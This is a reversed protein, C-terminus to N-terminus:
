AKQYWMQLVTVARSTCDVLEMNRCSGEEKLLRWEQERIRKLHVQYHYWSGMAKQIDKVELREAEV